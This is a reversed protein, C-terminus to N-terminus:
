SPKDKRGIFALLVMTMGNRLTALKIPLKLLFNMLYNLLAKETLEKNNLYGKGVGDGTIYLEGPTYIPMPKLYKDLIFLRLNGLPKGIPIVRYNKITAEDLVNATACITTETPGYANIIKM